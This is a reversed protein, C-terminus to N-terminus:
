LDIYLNYYRDYQIKTINLEKCIKNICRNNFFAAVLKGFVIITLLIIFLWTAISKIIENQLIAGIFGIGFLTGLIIFSWKFFINGKSFFKYVFQTYKNPVYKNFVELFQEKSLEMKEKNITKGNDM